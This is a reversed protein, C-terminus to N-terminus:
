TPVIIIDISYVMSLVYPWELGYHRSQIILEYVFM